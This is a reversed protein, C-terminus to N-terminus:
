LRQQRFDQALAPRLPIRVPRRIAAASYALCSVGADSSIGYQFHSSSAGFNLAAASLTFPLAHPMETASTFSGVMHRICMRSLSTSSKAFPFRTHSASPKAVLFRRL